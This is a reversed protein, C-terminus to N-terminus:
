SYVYQTLNCVALPSDTRKTFISLDEDNKNKFYEQTQLITKCIVRSMTNLEHIIIKKLNIINVNESTKKTSFSKIVNCAILKVKRQVFM